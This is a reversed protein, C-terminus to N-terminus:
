LIRFIIWPVQIRRQGEKFFDDVLNSVWQKTCEIEKLILFYNEGLVDKEYSVNITTPESEGKLTIRTALKGEHSALNLEDIHGYREVDIIGLVKLVVPLSRVSLSLLADKTNNLFTV